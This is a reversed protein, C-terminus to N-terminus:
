LDIDPIAMEEKARGFARIYEFKWFGPEPTCYKTQSKLAFILFQVVTCKPDDSVRLWYNLAWIEVQDRRPLLCAREELSKYNKNNTALQYITKKKKWRTKKAGLIM